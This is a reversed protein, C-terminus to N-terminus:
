IMTIFFEGRDWEEHRRGHSRRVTCPHIATTAVDRYSSRALLAKHAQALSREHGRLDRLVAQDDRDAQALARDVAAARAPEEYDTRLQAELEQLAPLTRAVIAHLQARSEDPDPRWVEIDRDQIRKPINAKNQIIEIDKEKPNPQAALAWVWIWYAEESFYLDGVHASHGLLQIAELRDTGYWTRDEELRRALHEWRGIMYRVGAAFRKLDICAWAPNKNFYAELHAVKEEQKEEFRFLAERIKQARLTARIRHCRQIELRAVVVQEVLAEETPTAPAYENRTAELRALLDESRESGLALGEIWFSQAAPRRAPGAGARTGLCALRPMTDDRIRDLIEPHVTM